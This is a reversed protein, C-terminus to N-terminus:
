AHAASIMASRCIEQTQQRYVRAGASKVCTSSIDDRKPPNGAQAASIM